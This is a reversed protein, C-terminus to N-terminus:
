ASNVFGLKTKSTKKPPHSAKLEQVERELRECRTTLNQVAQFLARILMDKEPHSPTSLDPLTNM